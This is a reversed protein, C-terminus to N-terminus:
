LMDSRLSPKLRERNNSQSQEPDELFLAGRHSAARGRARSVSQGPLIGPLRWTPHGKERTIKRKVGPMRGGGKPGAESNACADQARTAVCPSLSEAAAPLRFSKGNRVSHALGFAIALVGGAVRM